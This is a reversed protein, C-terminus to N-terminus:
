GAQQWNQIINEIIKVIKDHEPVDKVDYYHDTDIYDEVVSLCYIEDALIHMRDVTPVNALPTAIILKDYGVTKLFEVALDLGFASNMGDSVLIIHHGRLLDKRVVGGAGLMGGMKHLKALKEAEILGHYETVLEDAEAKPYYSNYAYAGNDVIGAIAHPEQPLKIEEYLLMNLICHLQMAIQAGVVVGGDSLAVVACNEFRYKPVLQNALM